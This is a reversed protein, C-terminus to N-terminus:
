QASIAKTEEGLAQHWFKAEWWKNYCPLWEDIHLDRKKKRPHFVNNNIKNEKPSLPSQHEEHPEHKM